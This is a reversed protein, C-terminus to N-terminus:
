DALTFRGAEIATVTVLARVVWGHSELRARGNRFAKEIVFCAGVVRCGAEEAIEGLAEATRGGSLFDDIVAVQAGPELAHRAVQVRYEPGKTSSVVDRTFAYREGPGLFKKAYVVPTTMALGAALAPPIGSAEATLLLDPRWPELVNALRRGIDALVSPDVRHNLFRDVKLLQREVTAMERVATLLDM